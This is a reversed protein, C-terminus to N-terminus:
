YYTTQNYRLHYSINSQFSFITLVSLMDPIQIATDIEFEGRKLKLCEVNSFLCETLIWWLWHLLFFITIHRTKPKGPQKIGNHIRGHHIVSLFPLFKFFFIYSSSSWHLFQISICTKQFWTKLHAEWVVVNVKILTKDTYNVSLDHCKTGWRPQYYKIM